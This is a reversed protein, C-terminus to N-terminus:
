AMKTERQFLPAKEIKYVGMGVSRITFYFVVGGCITSKNELLWKKAVARNVRVGCGVPESRLLELIDNENM